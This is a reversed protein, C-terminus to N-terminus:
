ARIRVGRCRPPHIPDPIRAQPCPHARHVQAPKHLAIQIVVSTTLPVVIKIEEVERSPITHSKLKTVPYQHSLPPLPDKTPINPILRGSRIQLYLKDHIISNPDVEETHPGRFTRKGTDDSHYADEAMYYFQHQAIFKQYESTTQLQAEM